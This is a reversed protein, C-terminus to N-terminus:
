LCINANMKLGPIRCQFSFPSLPLGRPGPSCRAERAERAATRNFGGPDERWWGGWSACLGEGGAVREARVPKRGMSDNNGQKEVCM